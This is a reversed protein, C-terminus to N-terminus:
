NRGLLRRRRPLVRAHSLVLGKVPHPHAGTSTAGPGNMNNNVTGAQAPGNNNNNVTGPQAPGNMNNNTIGGTQQAPEAPTFGVLNPNTAACACVFSRNTRSFKNLVLLQVTAPAKFCDERVSAPQCMFCCAVIRNQLARGAQMHAVHQM